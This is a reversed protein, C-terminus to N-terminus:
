EVRRGGRRRIEVTYATRPLDMNMMWWRDMQALPLRSSWQRSNKVRMSDRQGEDSPPFGWTTTTVPLAVSSISAIWLPRTNTALVTAGFTEVNVEGEEDEAAVAVAAPDVGRLVWIAAQEKVGRGGNMSERVWVRVDDRRVWVLTVGSRRVRHSWFNLRARAVAPRDSGRFSL